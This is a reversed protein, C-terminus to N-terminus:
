GQQGEAFQSFPIIQQPPIGAQILADVLPRDTSDYDIIVQDGEIHAMVLINPELDGHEPTPMFLTCYACRSDDAFHYLNGRWPRMAAYNAVEQQVVTRLDM